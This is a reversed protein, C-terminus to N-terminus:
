TSIQEDDGDEERHVDLMEELEWVQFERECRVCEFYNDGHNLSDWKRSKGLDYQYDGPLTMEEVAWVEVVQDAVELLGEAGCEPCQWPRGNITTKQDWDEIGFEALCRLMALEDQSLSRILDKM